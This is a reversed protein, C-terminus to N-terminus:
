AQCVKHRFPHHKSNLFKSLFASLASRVHNRSAPSLDGMAAWLAPWNATALDRVTSTGSLGARAGYGRLQDFVCAYRKRTQEGAAGPKGMSLLTRAFAGQDPAADNWLPKVLLLEAGLDDNGLRNDRSAQRLAEWTTRNEFLAKVVGLQGMEILRRLLARRANAEHRDVDGVSKQFRWKPSDPIMIDIRDGLTRKKPAPM